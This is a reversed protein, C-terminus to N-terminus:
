PRLGRGDRTFARLTALMDKVRDPQEAALNHREGPDDDLNYLHPQADHRQGRPPILKWPGRRLAVGRPGWTEELLFPLGRADQGLLAELNDRSDLAQGPELEIDLMAAFSALLDIQSVLADSTTGPQIKGPWKVIFPVRTGGEYIQYKGGRYPGSGDHGRDVEKTSTHVTTGDRYGDDYVPGNDSTWIVITNESFGHRELADL